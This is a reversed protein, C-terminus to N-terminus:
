EIYELIDTETVISFLKKGINNEPYTEIYKPFEYANIGLHM